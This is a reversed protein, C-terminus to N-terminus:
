EGEKQEQKEESSIEQPVESSLMDAIELIAGDQIAQTENLSELMKELESNKATLAQFQQKIDAQTLRVTVIDGYIPESEKVVSGDEGFEETTYGTIQNMSKVIDSFETYSNFVSMIGGSADCLYITETKDTDKLLEELEAINANLFSVELVAPTTYTNNEVKYIEKETGDKFKIKEM